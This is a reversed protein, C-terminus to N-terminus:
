DSEDDEDEDDSEKLWSLFPTASSKVAHEAAIDEDSGTPEATEWALITEESLIDDQYLANFVLPVLRLRRPLNGNETPKIGDLTAAKVLVSMIIDETVQFANVAGKLEKLYAPSKIDDFCNTMFPLLNQICLNVKPDTTEKSLSEAAARLASMDLVNEDNDSESSRAAPNPTVDLDSGTMVGAESEYPSSGPSTGETKEGEAREKRERRRSRREETERSGSAGNDGKEGRRRRRSDSSSKHTKLIYACLKHSAECPETSGCARCKQYITDRKVSLSTEPLHCNPCLVFKDIFVNLLKQLSSPSHAGNVTSKGAGAEWRCQAGLEVGFFKTVIEPMRVLAESIEKMNVICTKIGNGSGETRTVMRPMRYRYTPDVVERTGSINLM